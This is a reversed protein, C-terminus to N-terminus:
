WTTKTKRMKLKIKMSMLMVRIETGTKITSLITWQEKKVPIKMKMKKM